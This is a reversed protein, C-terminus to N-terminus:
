AVTHAHCFRVFICFFFEFANTAISQLVIESYSYKIKSQINKLLVNQQLM